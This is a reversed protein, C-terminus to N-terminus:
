ATKEAMLALNNLHRYPGMPPYPVSFADLVNALLKGMKEDVGLVWSSGVAGANFVSGGGPRQWLIMECSLGDLSATPAEFFDLYADLRGPRNRIGEAIVEIGQQCEPEDADAPVHPTMRLLTSATL